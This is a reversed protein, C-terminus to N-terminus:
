QANNPMKKFLWAIACLSSGISVGILSVAASSWSFSFDTLWMPVDPYTDVYISNVSYLRFCTIGCGFTALSFQLILATQIWRNRRIILTLMGLIVAVLAIFIPIVGFVELLSTTYIIESTQEEM